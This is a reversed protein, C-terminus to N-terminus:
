HSEDDDDDELEVSIVDGSESLKVEHTEGGKKCKAEYITIPAAPKVFKLEAHVVAKEAELVAGQKQLAAQVAPPLTKPSITEEVEILTGDGLFKAEFTRGEETFKVEYVPLSEEDEELAIVAAKPFLKKAALAVPVPVSAEGGALALGVVSVACIAGAAVVTKLNWLTKM